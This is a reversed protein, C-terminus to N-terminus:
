VKCVFCGLCFEFGNPPHIGGFLCITKDCEKIKPINFYCEECLHTQSQFRSAMNCCYRWKYEIFDNKHKKLYYWFLWLKWWTYLFDKGCLCDQENNKNKNFVIIKNSENNKGVYYPRNCKYCLFFM